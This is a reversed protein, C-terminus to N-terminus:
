GEGIDGIREDFTPMLHFKDHVFAHWNGVIHIALHGPNRSKCEKRPIDYQEVIVIFRKKGDELGPGFLADTEALSKFRILRRILSERQPGVTLIDWDDANGA